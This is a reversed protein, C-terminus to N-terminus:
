PLKSQVKTYNGFMRRSRTDLKYPSRATQELPQDAKSSRHGLVRDTGKILITSTFDHSVSCAAEGSSAAKTTAALTSPAKKKRLVGEVM